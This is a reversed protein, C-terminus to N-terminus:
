AADAATDDQRELSRQDNLLERARSLVPAHPALDQVKALLIEVVSKLLGIRQQNRRDRRECQRQQEEISRFRAEIKNWVFAIGAGTTALSGGSLVAVVVDSMSM